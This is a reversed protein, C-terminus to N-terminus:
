IPHFYSSKETSMFTLSIIESVTIAALGGLYPFFVVTLSIQHGKHQQGNWCIDAFSSVLSTRLVGLFLRSWPRQLLFSAELLCHSRSLTFGFSIALWACALHTSERVTAVRLRTSPNHLWGLSDAAPSPTLHWEGRSVVKLKLLVLSLVVKLHGM